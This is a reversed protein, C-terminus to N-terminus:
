EGSSHRRADQETSHSERVPSGNKARGCPEGLAKRKLWSDIEVSHFRWQKGIKVGPLSGSEAWLCVTRQSISLMEALDQTTLM